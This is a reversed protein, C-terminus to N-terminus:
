KEVVKFNDKDWRYYEGFYTGPKVNKIRSITLIVQQRIQNYDQKKRKQKIITTVEDVNRCVGKKLEDFIDKALSGERIGKINKVPEEKKLEEKIIDVKKYRDKIEKDIIKVLEKNVDRIKDDIEEVRRAFVFDKLNGKGYELGLARKQEILM